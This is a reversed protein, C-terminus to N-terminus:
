PIEEVTSGHTKAKKLAQRLTLREFHEAPKPGVIHEIGLRNVAGYIHVEVYDCDEADRRREMLVNVFEAIGQGKEISAHLKAVSLRDRANWPARYGSPPSGGAYVGHVRNFFFPNKEFVSSRKEITVDRLTVAYEGYRTMGRRDLSLAAFNIETYCFPNIAAEAASRQQDYESPSPKRGLESVQKHFSLFLPSPGNLWDSLAGLSRNMVAKSASVAVEFAELEATVGRADASAKSQTYRKELASVEEASQARRVNPYGVVTSCVSCERESLEVTAGCNPCKDSM